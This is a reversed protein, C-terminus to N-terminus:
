FNQALMPRISAKGIVNRSQGEEDRARSRSRKLKEFLHLKEKWSAKRPKKRAACNKVELESYLGMELARAQNIGMEKQYATNIREYVDNRRDYIPKRKSGRSKSLEPAYSIVRYTTKDRTNEDFENSRQKESDLTENNRCPVMESSNKSEVTDKEAEAWTVNELDLGDLRSEKLGKLRNIQAKSVGRDELESELRASYMLLQRDEDVVGEVYRGFTHLIDMVREDLQKVFEIEKKMGKSCKSTDKIKKLNGATLEM